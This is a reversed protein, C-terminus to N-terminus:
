GTLGAERVCCRLIAVSFMMGLLKSSCGRAAMFDVKATDSNASSPPSEVDPAGFGSPWLSVSLLGTTRRLAYMSSAASKVSTAEGSSKSCCAGARLFIRSSLALLQWSAASSTTTAKAALAGSSATDDTTDDSAPATTSFCM